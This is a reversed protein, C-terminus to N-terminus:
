FEDLTSIISNLAESESIEKLRYQESIKMMKRLRIRFQTSVSSLERGEFEEHYNLDTALHVYHSLTSNSAHMTIKRCANEAVTLINSFSGYKSMKRIAKAVYLTIFRHRFSHNTVHRLDISYPSGNIVKKAYNKLYSSKLQAGTNVDVFIADHKTNPFKKEVMNIHCLIIQLDEKAVQVQRVKGKYKGKRIAINRIIHTASSSMMSKSAKKIMTRTIQHAESIRSGTIELLTALAQWRTVLFNNLTPHYTSCNIADLWKIYEHDHIFEAETTIHILGDLCRHYLYDKNIRGSKYTKTTYHVGYKHVPKEENTSLNWAPHMQTLHAIYGLATRVHSIITADTIRREKLYEVYRYLISDNIESLEIQYGELFTCFLNLNYAKKEVTTALPKINFIKPGGGYNTLYSNADWDFKGDQKLILPLSCVDIENKRKSTILFSLDPQRAIEVTSM